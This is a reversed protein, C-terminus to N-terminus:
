RRKEERILPLGSETMTFNIFDNFRKIQIIEPILKEICDKHYFFTDPLYEVVGFERPRVYDIYEWNRDFGKPATKLFDDGVSPFYKKFEPSEVISIYEEINDRIDNRIATLYKTPLMYNGGWIFSHGPELNLYYGAMLSKKGYPPCVFIGIHTKYPTKDESFRTDRVLRYVCEDVPFGTAAKDVSSIADIFREAATERMRMVHKYEEKHDAVWERTNNERLHGLFTFIDKLM